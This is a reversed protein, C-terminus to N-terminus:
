TMSIAAERGREQIQTNWWTLAKNVFSSAVYKVERETMSRLAVRRFDRTPVGMTGVMGMTTIEMTTTIKM